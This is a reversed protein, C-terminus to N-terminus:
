CPLDHDERVRALAKELCAFASELEEDSTNVPPLMRIKGPSAGAGLLILGEEFSAELVAKVIEPAGNWPVFAMMAGTGVIDGVARPMRKALSQFRRRIRGGLLAIRGETGLYGDDELREILRAGVAMGVTSGAYTGAVLGPRPNYNKTFLTASGQLLKGATVIDVYEDLELQRFAFLEGTRVFTQVEDVWVAIGAEKCLGMVAAFFERPAMNFGGEGQIIEFCMGAIQGPYRRLHAELTALTKDTSDPDSADYFPVHLVNGKQPLGERFGPRDTLEAMAMTRGHFAKEFVVVKEAPAHKQFIMKLANENAVAGSLALWAHKLNPGAHRLLARSIRLEEPGPMLHGQFVTDGAAAVVATELLDADNHGFAYVGIGGIFDFKMSGDAMWVRAGKGEGSALMPYVLPRGRLRELERICKTYSKAALTRSAREDQVAAILARAAERVPESEVLSDIPSSRQRAAM